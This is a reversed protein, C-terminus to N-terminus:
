QRLLRGFPSAVIPTADSTPPKLAKGGGTM